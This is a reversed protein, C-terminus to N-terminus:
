FNTVLTVTFQNGAAGILDGVPVVVSKFIGKAELEKKLAYIGERSQAEGELIITRQSTDANYSIRNVSIGTPKQELVKAIVEMASTTAAVVPFLTTILSQTKAADTRDGTNASQTAPSDSPPHNFALLVYSPSLTLLQILALISLAISALFIFRTRFTAWLRKQEKMPLVNSM